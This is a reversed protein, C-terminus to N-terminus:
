PLRGYIATLERLRAATWDALAGPLFRWCWNPPGVTSPTNMRKEHGLSLLDQATTMATNAVSAWALRILDWAIDSGDRALYKRAYDREKETSTVQYWGLNTDNDHTGTYVICDPGFNHPLFPDTPDGGFAFQLVKMGPYGFEAQLAEVGARSEDDFDGLDEAIIAVRGLAATVARFLDAGPGYMWRGKIATEEGAPVEWYNFFGRFHDIRLVDAQTFAMRFRAIWWAYGDQATVDWRYLPHGWLQGTESFYDPPVGSVVTPRLEEDFHFLHPNAWVDASDLSVFIPIDGIIRIGRQNAYGKLALWQEFFLWQLYKQNEIEQLLLKRQQALAEAQRTALEPEWEHWPNLNHTGKLAMFLAFDDLWFAQEQGFRALAARQENSAQAQFRVFARNLLGTKYRIVPGFDVRDDPFAPVDELDQASLHGMEVLKELNILMPNGAFASLTQYPSDAYGTPNLPLVQWYSQGAAALFDIFQYARRGLDGIGFRGPLSTPHLLIGSRRPFKM